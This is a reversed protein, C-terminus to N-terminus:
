VYHSKKIIKNPTDKKEKNVQKVGIWALEFLTKITNSIKKDYIIIGPYNEQFSVIRVKENDILIDAEIPFEKSLLKILDRTKDSEVTQLDSSYICKSHINNKIRYNHTKERDKKHYEGQYSDLPFISRITSGKNNFFEDRSNSLHKEGEFFRVFPKDKDQLKFISNLEDLAEELQHNKEELEAKEKVVLNSLSIPDEAIFFTKKGEKISKCLGKEKLTKLVIYTMSRGINAKQAINIVTDKYLEVLTIYVRAEKDSLGLIKLRKILSM